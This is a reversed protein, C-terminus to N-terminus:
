RSAMRTVFITSAAMAVGLLRKLLWLALALEIWSSYLEHLERLGTGIRDIDASMLTLAAADSVTTTNLRLTKDFLLAVLSGRFM